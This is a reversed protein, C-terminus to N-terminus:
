NGVCVRARGESKAQYLIEDAKVLLEERGMDPQYQILGISVGLQRGDPIKIKLKQIARCLREALSQAAKLSTDPLVLVFEDGGMRALLDSSRITKKMAAAVLQLVRDGEIHGFTDNVQKFYDLDMSALSIPRNHRRAGDLMSDIRDEFVRRNALGTLADNNAMEFLDEYELARQLPEHLIQLADNILCLEEREMKAERVLLITDSQRRNGQLRWQQVHYPQDDFTIYQATNDGAFVKRAIEMVRRRKPGHCSCFLYQRNRAPNDYAILEHEVLPLMWVSLAEVMGPLDIAKALRGHLENIVALRQAKKRHYDLENILYDMNVVSAPMPNGTQKVAALQQRSM